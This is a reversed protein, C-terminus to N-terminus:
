NSIVEYSSNLQNIFHIILIQHDLKNLFNFTLFLFTQFLLKIDSM